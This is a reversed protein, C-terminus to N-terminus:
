RYILVPVRSQRLVQTTQSGILLAALAPRTHSAMVILDCGRDAAVKVIEAAPSDGVVYFCHHPVSQRTAERGIRNLYDQAARIGATEARMAKGIGAAVGTEVVIHLVTVTAGLTKALRLGSRAATECLESGDTPLLIHTYM